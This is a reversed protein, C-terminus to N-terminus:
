SDLGLFTTVNTSVIKVADEPGVAEVVSALSKESYGFTSENHPYDSSWMVRDLGIRDIMELGLPDVMFSAYMHRRWYHAVDHDLGHDAMHQLSAYLHVADQLAAPVWNIGGEFWGVTIGPHRDLIGGFVYRGFMERFPAVNHVMGVLVSNDRCPSALPAEGIHHAVPLGSEEIAEWVPYMAPSNYDIPKDDDGAGPKLPLWFTKLGLDKLETLTRRCGAGDWWNVMGVGYFRGHSQEQQEAIHENYIRFCRERVAKDPWGMLALMANPFALERHIGDSELEHLRAEIDSTSSGALPDYQMLVANFERPLFTKGGFGLTWAGDEHIVRPAQDKLSDPFREYFIDEALSIHDDASFVETGAPLGASGSAHGQRDKPAGFGERPYTVTPAQATM